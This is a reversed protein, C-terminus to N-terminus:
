EVVMLRKTQQISKGARLTIFYMGSANPAPIEFQNAKGAEAEYIKKGIANFIEVRVPQASVDKEFNLMLMENTNAPNPYLGVSLEQPKEEDDPDTKSDKPNGKPKKAVDPTAVDIVNKVIVARTFFLPKRELQGCVVFQSGDSNLPFVSRLIIDSTDLNPFVVTSSAQQLTLANFKAVKGTKPHPWSDPWANLGLIFDNKFISDPYMGNEVVTTILEGNPLLKLDRIADILMGGFTQQNKVQGTVGDTLMLSSQPGSLLNTMSAGGIVWDGTALRVSKFGIGRYSREWIKAPPQPVAPPNYTKNFRTLRTTDSALQFATIGWSLVYYADSTVVIDAVNDLLHFDYTEYFQEKLDLDVQLLAYDTYTTDNGAKYTLQILSILNSSGDLRMEQYGWLKYNKTPHAPPDVYNKEIVELDKNTKVLLIKRDPSSNPGSLDVDGIFYYSTPTVVMDTIESRIGGVEDELDNINIENGESDLLAIYAHGYAKGITLFEGPAVQQIKEANGKTDQFVRFLTTPTQAALFFPAFLLAFLLNSLHKM